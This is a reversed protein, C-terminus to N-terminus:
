CIIDIFRNCLSFFVNLHKRSIRLYVVVSCLSFCQAAPRSILAKQRIYIYKNFTNPSPSNYFTQPYFIIYNYIKIIMYQFKFM